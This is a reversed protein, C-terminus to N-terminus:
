ILSLPPLPPFPLSPSFLPLVGSYVSQYLPNAQNYLDNFVQTWHQITSAGGNFFHKQYRDAFRLQFEPSNKLAAWLGEFIM